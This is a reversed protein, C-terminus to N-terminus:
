QDQGLPWFSPQPPSFRLGRYHFGAETPRGDGNAEPVYPPRMETTDMRMGSLVQSGDRNAARMECM